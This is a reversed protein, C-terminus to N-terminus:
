EEPFFRDLPQLKIKSLRITKGLELNPYEQPTVGGGGGLTVPFEDLKSLEPDNEYYEKPCISRDLTFSHSWAWGWDVKLNVHESDVPVASGTATLYFKLPLTSEGYHRFCDSGQKIEIFGSPNTSFYGYRSGTGLPITTAAFIQGAHFLMLHLDYKKVGHKGHSIVRFALEDCTGKPFTRGPGPRYPELPLQVQPKRYARGVIKPRSPTMPLSFRRGPVLDKVRQETIYVAQRVRNGHKELQQFSFWVDWDILGKENRSFRSMMVTGGGCKVLPFHEPQVFLEIEEQKYNRFITMFEDSGTEMSEYLIKGDVSLRMAWSLQEKEPKDPTLIPVIEFRLDCEPKELLVIDITSKPASPAPGGGFCGAALASGAIAMLLILRFIRHSRKMTLEKIRQKLKQASSSLRTGAPFIERYVASFAILQQVYEKRDGSSFGSLHSVREDCDCEWCEILRRRSLRIGPDFWYFSELLYFFLHKCPDFRRIHCLEHTLLMVIARDSLEPVQEAPFFVCPRVVGTSFPMQCFGSNDRFTITRRFRFHQRAETWLRLLRPDRVEEGPFQRQVRIIRFLRTAFLILGFFLLLSVGTGPLNNGPVINRFEIQPQQMNGAPLGSTAPSPSIVAPVSSKKPPNQPLVAAPSIPIEPLIEPLLPQFMEGPLILILFILYWGVAAKRGALSLRFGRELLLIIFFVVLGRLFLNMCSNWIENM